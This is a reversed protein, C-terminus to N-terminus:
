WVNCQSGRIDYFRLGDGSFAIKKIPFNSGVVRYVLRLSDFEFVQITGNADGTVLLRGNSSCSITQANARVRAVVVLESPDFSVLDGDHYLAGLLSIKSSTSFVLDQIHSLSYSAQEIERDTERECTGIFTGSEMDYLGIPLGRQAAAIISLDLSISACTFVRRFALDTDADSPAELLASSLRSGDAVSFSFIAGGKTALWITQDDEVFSLAICEQPLRTKWLIQADDVRYVMIFHATCIALLRETSSFTMFKASQDLNQQLVRQCTSRSYLEVSKNSLSVAFYADACALQRTQRDNYHISATRDSWLASSLGSVTMVHNSKGFQAGIATGPPCLPPILWFISPPCDILNQGFQTALRILDQHWNEVRQVDEGLPPYCKSRAQLFGKVDKATQTLVSIASAQAIFEIWCSVNGGFFTSLTSFRQVNDSQSRRLHHSFYLCAYGAFPSRKAAKARYLHMLKQSRPPRFEESNLYALCVDAIRNHGAAKAVAFESEGQLLFARATEHVVSVRSHKDVQVLNGCRTLLAERLSLINEGIDLKLAHQLEGISLPRVAYVVWILIAKIIHKERNVESLLKLSRSYLANMGQPVDDLVRWIGAESFASQIEELVLVAWLFSGCSKAIITEIIRQRLSSNEFMADKTHSRVYLDIDHCTDAATMEYQYALDKLAELNKLTEFTSRSTMLVRPALGPSLKELLSTISISDSCEDLADIVWFHQRSLLTELIGNVFVKRWLALPNNKDLRIGEAQMVLLQQLVAPETRAMQYAISTLCSGLSAKSGDDHKFFFFSCARHTDELYRIVHAAM